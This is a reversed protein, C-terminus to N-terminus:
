GRQQIMGKAVFQEKLNIIAQEFPERWNKSDVAFVKGGALEIACKSMGNQVM